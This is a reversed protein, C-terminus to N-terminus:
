CPFTCKEYPIYSFKMHKTHTLCKANRNEYYEFMKNVSLASNQAAMWAMWAMFCCFLGAMWLWGFFLWGCGDVAMWAMWRSKAFVAMWLWGDGDM